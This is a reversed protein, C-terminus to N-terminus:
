SRVGAVLKQLGRLLLFIPALLIFLGSLLLVALLRPVELTDRLRLLERLLM